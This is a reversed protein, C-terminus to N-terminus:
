HGYLYYVREKDTRSLGEQVPQLPRNMKSKLTTLGPSRAFADAPYLMISEPDFDFV